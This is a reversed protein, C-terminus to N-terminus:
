SVPRLMLGTADAGGSTKCAAKRYVASFHMSLSRSCFPACLLTLTQDNCCDRAQLACTASCASLAHAPLRGSTAADPSCVSSRRAQKRLRRREAASLHRRSDGGNAAQGAEQEDEDVAAAASPDPFNLGYRGHRLNFVAINARCLM